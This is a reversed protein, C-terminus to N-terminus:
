HVFLAGPLVYLAYTLPLVYCIYIVLDPAYKSCVQQVLGPDDPESSVSSLVSTSYTGILYAQLYAQCPYVALICYRLLSAVMFTSRSDESIM